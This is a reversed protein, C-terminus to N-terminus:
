PSGEDDVLPKLNYGLAWLLRFETLGPLRAVLRHMEPASPTVILKGREWRSVTERKIRIDDALNRQTLGAETRAHVILKGYMTGARSEEIGAEGVDATSFSYQPGSM